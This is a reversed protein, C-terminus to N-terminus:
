DKKGLGLKERLIQSNREIIEDTGKGGKPAIQSTRGQLSLFTEVDLNLSSSVLKTAMQMRDSAPVSSSINKVQEFVKEKFNPIADVSSKNASAFREYEDDLEKKWLKYELLEQKRLYEDLNEDWTPKGKYQVGEDEDEEFLEPKVIRLEDLNDYGYLDKIIKNQTTGELNLLEKPDKEVLRKAFNLEGQRAKDAFSQLNKLDESSYKNGDDGILKGAQGAEPNQDDNRLEENSAQRKEM